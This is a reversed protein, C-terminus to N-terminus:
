LLALLDVSDTPPEITVPTGFDTFMLDIKLNPNVYRLPYPPGQAAVLVQGGVGTLSFVPTGDVSTQEKKNM